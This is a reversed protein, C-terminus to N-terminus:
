KRIYLINNVAIFITGIQQNTCFDQIIKKTPIPTENLKLHSAFFDENIFTQRSYNHKIINKSQKNPVILLSVNYLHNLIFLDNNQVKFKTTPLADQTLINNQKIIVTAHNNDITSVTALAIIINGTASYQRM